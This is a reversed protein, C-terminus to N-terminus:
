KFFPTKRIPQAGLTKKGLRHKMLASSENNYRAIPIDDQDKGIRFRRIALDVIRQHYREPLPSVLDIVTSSSVASSVAPTFTLTRTSGVYDTIRRIQTGIAVRHGIYVGNDILLQGATMTAPLVATTTTGSTATCYFFGAPRKIYWVRMTGSSPKYPFEIYNDRISYPQKTPYSAWNSLYSLRDGWYTTITDIPDNTDTADYVSLLMEGDWRSDYDLLNYRESGDLTIDFYTSLKLPDVTVVEDILNDHSNDLRSVIFDLMDSGYVTLGVDLNVEMQVEKIMQRTTKIM